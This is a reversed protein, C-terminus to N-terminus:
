GPARGGRAGAEPQLEREIRRDAAHGAVAAERRVRGLEGPAGVAAVRHVPLRELRGGARAGAPDKEAGRVVRRAGPGAASSGRPARTEEPWRWVGIAESAGSTAARVMVSSAGLLVQFRAPRLHPSATIGSAASRARKWAARASRTCVGFM